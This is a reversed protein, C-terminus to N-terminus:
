FAQVDTVEKPTRHDPSAPSDMGLSLLNNDRADEVVSFSIDPKTPRM